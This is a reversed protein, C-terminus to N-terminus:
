DERFYVSNNTSTKNTKTTPEETNNDRHTTTIEKKPKSHFVKLGTGKPERVVAKRVPAIERIVRRAQTPYRHAANRRMSNPRSTQSGYDPPPINEKKSEIVEPANALEKSKRENELMEKAANEAAIKEANEKALTADKAKKYALLEEPSTPLPESSTPNNNTTNEETYNTDNTAITNSNVTNEPTAVSPISTTQPTTTNNKNFFLTKLLLPLLLAWLLINSWLFLKNWKSAGSISSIKNELFQKDLKITNEIRTLITNNKSTQEALETFNKPLSGSTKKTDNEEIKTHLYNLRSQLDDLQKQTIRTNSNTEEVIKELTNMKENQHATDEHFNTTSSSTNNALQSKITNAVDELERNKEITEKLKTELATLKENVKQSATNDVKSDKANVDSPSNRTSINHVSFELSLLKNYFKDIESNLKDIKDNQLQMTSSQKRSLAQIEAQTQEIIQLQKGDKKEGSSRPTEDFMDFDQSTTDM